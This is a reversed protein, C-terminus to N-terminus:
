KYVTCCVRPGFPNNKCLRCRTSAFVNRVISHVRDSWRCALHSKCLQLGKAAVGPEKFGVKQVAGPVCRAGRIWTSDPRLWLHYTLPLLLSGLCKCSPFQCLPGPHTGTFPAFCSSLQQNTGATKPRKRLCKSSTTQLRHFSIRFCIM